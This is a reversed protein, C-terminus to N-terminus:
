LLRTSSRWATIPGSHDFKAITDQSSTHSPNMRSSGCIFQAVVAQWVVELDKGPEDETTFKQALLRKREQNLLKM